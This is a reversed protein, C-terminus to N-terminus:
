PHLSLSGFSDSIDVDIQYYQVKFQAQLTVIDVRSVTATWESLQQASKVGSGSYYYYM